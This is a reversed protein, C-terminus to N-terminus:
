VAQALPVSTSLGRLKALDTVTSHGAQGPAAAIGVLFLRLCAMLTSFQDISDFVVSAVGAGHTRSLQDAANRQMDPLGLM